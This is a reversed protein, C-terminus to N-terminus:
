TAALRRGETHCARKPAPARGRLLPRVLGLGGARAHSGGRVPRRAGRDGQRDQARDARVQAGWVALQRGPRGSLRVRCSPRDVWRRIDPMHEVFQAHTINLHSFLRDFTKTSLREIERCHWYIRYTLQHNYEHQYERTEFLQKTRGTYGANVVFDLAKGAIVLAVAELWSAYRVSGGTTHDGYAMVVTLILVQARVAHTPRPM